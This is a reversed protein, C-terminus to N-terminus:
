RSKVLRMRKLVVEPEAVGPSYIPELTAANYVLLRLDYDGPPLDAPIDLQVLTDFSASKGGSGTRSHDPKRLTADKIYQFGEGGAASYLRLSVAYDVDLGAATEWQLAAWLTRMEGLSHLQRSSLQERGQGLAFGRLAIGSDFAVVLRELNEYFTWPRELSVDSFTHIAFSDYDDSGLYRGYRSLLVTIRETEAATGVLNTKWEVAKVLSLDEVSALSSSIKRALDPTKPHYLFAPAEGQYLYEFTYSNFDEWLDALRHGDPILYVTGTDAPHEHMERVLELWEAKYIWHVEPAVAWKHFYIQYTRVVQAVILAGVLIALAFVSKAWSKRFILGTLFRYTEWVGVGALLYAAPLAGSMRLTNPVFIDKALVAPLLLLILWSLLLRYAPRQWRWFSMGVGIWFFCAEWPALLPQAPYNHEWFRDGRFGFVSLHSWTNELFARLPDAQGQGPQFVLLQDSRMFFHQPHLAFHVLIPAAVLLSVGAFLFAWPLHDKLYGTWLHAAFRSLRRVPPIRTDWREREHICWSVLFGLGLFLFLFPAFRAAIYSYPLLGACVGALALRARNRQSWGRWLLALGFCLLMPLFNARYATRGIITLGLSAALLGAGVGGVLLGRWPTAQGNEGDSSFLTRGLWFVGFVTGASALAAPLRLALMTPGLLATTLAVAYVMLGERGNNGPFFVAHEGSLVHMADVGHASEDLTLGPPIETLRYLRLLGVALALAILIGVTMLAVPRGANAGLRTCGDSQEKLRASVRMLKSCSYQTHPRENSEGAPAARHLGVM